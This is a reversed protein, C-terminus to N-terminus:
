NEPTLDLKRLRTLEGLEPPIPGSLKNNHLILTELQGLRGLSAPLPGELHNFYMVLLRLEALDGLEAPLEGRLENVNLTLGVVHGGECQVGYWECPPQEGLWGRQDKWHPGDTGEYLAVLAAREVAPISGEGACAAGLALLAGLTLILTASKM